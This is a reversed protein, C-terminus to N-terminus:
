SLDRVQFQRWQLPLFGPCCVLFALEEQLWSNATPREKIWLLSIVSGYSPLTSEWDASKASTSIGDIANNKRKTNPLLRRPGPLTCRISLSDSNEVIDKRWLASSLKVFRSCKTSSKTSSWRLEMSGQKVEQMCADTNTHIECSRV